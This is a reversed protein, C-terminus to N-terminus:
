IHTDVLLRPLASELHHQLGCAEPAPIGVMKDARDSISHVIIASIFSQSAKGNDRGMMVQNINV